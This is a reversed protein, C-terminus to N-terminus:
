LDQTYEEGKGDGPQLWLWSEQPASRKSLIIMSQDINTRKRIVMRWHSFSKTREDDDGAAEGALLQPVCGPPVLGLQLWWVLVLFYELESIQVINCNSVQCFRSSCSRIKDWVNRSLAMGMNHKASVWQGVEAQLLFLSLNHHLLLLSPTPLYCLLFILFLQNM